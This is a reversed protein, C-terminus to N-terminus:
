LARAASLRALKRRSRWGFPTPEYSWALVSLAVAGAFLGLDRLALDLHQGSTALNITITLLWGAVVPGGFQPFFAVILGAVMEHMGFILMLTHADIPLMAQAWPAVYSPWDAGMFHLYKDLGFLLPAVTFVVRLFLYLLYHTDEFWPRRRIRM